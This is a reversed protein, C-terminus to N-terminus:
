HTRNCIRSGLRRWISGTLDASLAVDAKTLEALRNALGVGAESSAVDCGYILIDADETFASSWQSIQDANHNLVSATIWQNGLRFTGESGHSIIHLADVQTRAALIESLFELGNVSSNLYLFELSREPGTQELLDNALLEFGDVSTDVVVLERSAVAASSSLLLRGTPEAMDAAASGDPAPDPEATAFEATEAAPEAAVPQDPVGDFLVRSELRQLLLQRRSQRVPRDTIM